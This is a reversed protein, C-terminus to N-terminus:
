GLQDALTTWACADLPYQPRRTRSDSKTQTPTEDLEDTCCALDTGELPYGLPPGSFLPLAGGQTPIDPSLLQPVSPALRAEAGSDEPGTHQCNGTSGPRLPDFDPMTRSSNRVDCDRFATTANPM